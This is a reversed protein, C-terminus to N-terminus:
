RSSERTCEVRHERRSIGRRHRDFVVQISEILDEESKCETDYGKETETEPCEDERNCKGEDNELSQVVRCRLNV